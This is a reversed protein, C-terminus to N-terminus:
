GRQLEKIKQKVLDKSKAVFSDRETQMAVKDWRSSALPHKDTRHLNPSDYVDRAYPVTYHVGQSDVNSLGSESLAGTVMPVWPDVTEAYVRSVDTRLQPDDLAQRIVKSLNKNNIKVNVQLQM